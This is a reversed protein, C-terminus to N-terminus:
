FGLATQNIQELALLPLIKLQQWADATIAALNVANNLNFDGIATRKLEWLIAGCGLKQGLDYALSRIYTGASCKVKIDLIDGRFGLFEIGYIEIECKKREIEIGQRALNYLKEGKVKKASYMPPLQQQKGVFSRLIKQIEVQNINSEQNRGGESESSRLVLSKKIEGTRDYTDSEVGLKITAEYTKPLLDFLGVMKTAPGIACILLGTAFPDLTGTHGIQKIKTISRLKAVVDHSTWDQEKNVLLFGAENDEVANRINRGKCFDEKFPQLRKIDFHTRSNVRYDTLGNVFTQQDYGLAIVNPQEEAMMKYPNVLDGLIVKDAIHLNKLNELRQREPYYPSRGKIKIVNQDRAITAVLFDGLERAQKILNIHGPHIIDFTGAILVKTM